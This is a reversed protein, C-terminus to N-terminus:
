HVMSHKRGRFVVNRRKNPSPMEKLWMRSSALAQSPIQQHIHTDADRGGWVVSFPTQIETASRGVMRRNILLVHQSM